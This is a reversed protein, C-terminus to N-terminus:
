PIWAVSSSSRVIITSAPDSTEAVIKLALIPGIGPM